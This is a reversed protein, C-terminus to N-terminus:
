TPARGALLPIGMTEFFTPSVRDSAAALGSPEAGVFAIPITSVSVGRPFSMALAASRVSPLAAIRELMPPYYTERHVLNYQGDPRKFVKVNLISATRIGLDTHQLLYLSRTLLAAGVLMVVSLAVQAVLLVCGWRSTASVITRDGTIQAGDRRRIAVWIPLASMVLGVTIAVFSTVALVRRDPTLSMTYAVNAPPIFSALSVVIIYALPVALAAGSLSLVLSEILMQQAIRWRTGGLALRVALEGRRAALRALLLGGLNVCALLLLLGTLGLILTLPRTYRERNTSLGTGVRELRPISDRLNARETPPLTPPVAIDLLKPWRTRVEAEAQDLTVGPRL